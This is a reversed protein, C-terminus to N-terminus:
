EIRKQERKKLAAMVEYDSEIQMTHPSIQEHDYKTM